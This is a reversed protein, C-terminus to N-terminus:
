RSRRAAAAAAANEARAMAPGAPAAGREGITQGCSRGMIMGHQGTGTLPALIRGCAAGGHQVVVHQEGCGILDPAQQWCVLQGGSLRVMEEDGFGELAPCSTTIEPV